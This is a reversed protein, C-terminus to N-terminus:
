ESFFVSLHSSWNGLVLPCELGFANGPQNLLLPEDISVVTFESRVKEMFPSWQPLFLDIMDKGAPKIQQGAYM